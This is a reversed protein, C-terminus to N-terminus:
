YNLKTSLSKILVEEETFLRDDGYSRNVPYFVKNFGNLGINGALSKALIYKKFYDTIRTENSILLDSGLSALADAIYIGLSYKGGLKKHSFILESENEKTKDKFIKLYDSESFQPKDIVFVSKENLSHLNRYANEIHFAEYMNLFLVYNIAGKVKPPIQDKMYTKLKYELQSMVISLQKMLKDKINFKRLYFENLKTFTFFCILHEKKLINNIDQSNKLLSEKTPYPLKKTTWLGVLRHFDSEQIKIWARVYFQNHQSGWSGAEDSFIFYKNNEM